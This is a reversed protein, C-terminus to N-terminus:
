SVMETGRESLVRLVNPLSLGLQDAIENPTKGELRLTVITNPLPDIDQVPKDSDALLAKILEADSKGWAGSIAEAEEPSLMEDPTPARDGIPEAWYRRIADWLSEEGPQCVLKRPTIQITRVGKGPVVRRSGLLKTVFAYPRSYANSRELQIRLTSAKIVSKSIAALQKGTRVTKGGATEIMEEKMHSVLFILSIGKDVQLMNMISLEYLGAEQWEQAGAIDGRPAWDTRFRARNTHILPKISGEFYAITDWILADFRDKELGNLIKEVELFLQYETLKMERRMRVLNLYGGVPTGAKALEEVINIGKVDDDIFMIRNPHVGCEFSFSTKGTDPRGYVNVIGKFLPGPYGELAEPSLPPNLVLFDTPTAM